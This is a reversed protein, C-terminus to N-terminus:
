AAPTPEPAEPAPKRRSRKTGKVPQDDPDGAPPDAPHAATCEKPPNEGDVSLHYWKGPADPTGVDQKAPHYLSSVCWDCAREILNAPM